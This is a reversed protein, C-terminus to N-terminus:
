HHRGRLAAGSEMLRQIEEIVPALEAKTQASSENYFAKLGITRVKQEL